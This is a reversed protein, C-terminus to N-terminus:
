RQRELDTCMRGLNTSGIVVKRKFEEFSDVAKRFYQNTIANPILGKETRVLQELFCVDLGINFYLKRQLEDYASVTVEPDPIHVSYYHKEM